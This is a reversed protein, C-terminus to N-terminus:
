NAQSKLRRMRLLKIKAKIEESIKPFEFTLSKMYVEFVTEDLDESCYFATSNSTKCNLSGLFSELYITNENASPWNVPPVQAVFSDYINLILDHAVKKPYNNHTVLIIILGDDTTQLHFCCLEGQYSKFTAKKAFKVLLQCCYNIYRLKDSSISKGFEKTILHFNGESNKFFIQLGMLISTNM